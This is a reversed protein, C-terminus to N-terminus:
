SFLIFFKQDFVICSRYEIDVFMYYVCMGEMNMDFGDFFFFVEFFFSYIDVKFENNLYFKILVDVLLNVVVILWRKKWEYYVQGFVVDLGFGGGFFFGFKFDNVQKQWVM